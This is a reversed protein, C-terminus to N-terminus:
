RVFAESWRDQEEIPLNQMLFINRCPNTWSSRIKSVNPPTGRLIWDVGPVVVVIMMMFMMKILNRTTADIRSNLILSWVSSMTM